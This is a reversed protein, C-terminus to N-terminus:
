KQLNEYKKLNAEMALKGALIGHTEIRNWLSSMIFTFTMLLTLLGRVIHIIYRYGFPADFPISSILLLFLFATVFWYIIATTKLNSLANNCVEISEKLVAIGEAYNKDQIRQEVKDLLFNATVAEHDSYSFNYNPVRDPLPLCYNRLVVKIAESSRYMIYDIRKGTCGKKVLSKPTYSNEPTENTGFKPSYEDRVEIYSDKFEAINLILRFCINILANIYNDAM